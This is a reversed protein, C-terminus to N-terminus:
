LSAYTKEGGFHGLHDHVLHFLQEHLNLYKSIILQSSVFLLGNHLKIDLKSDIMNWKIDDLISSCWSNHTYGKQIKKFSSPNNKITFTSAIPTPDLPFDPLWSLIDAICNDKGKIYSIMHKYQSLYEMWQAQHLSLDKQSNSNHLTKHNTYINIHTDLLDVHWKTLAWMISLLEQEHVPYHLEPGKLQRSEFVVPRFTEWIEGFFLVTGTYRMAPSMSRM